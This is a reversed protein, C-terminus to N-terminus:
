ILPHSNEQEHMWQLAYRAQREYHLRANASIRCIVAYNSNPDEGEYLVKALERVQSRSPEWRSIRRRKPKM